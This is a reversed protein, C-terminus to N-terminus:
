VLLKTTVPINEVDDRDRRAVEDRDICLLWTRDAGPEIPPTVDVAARMIVPVGEGETEAADM